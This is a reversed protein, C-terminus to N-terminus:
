CGRSYFWTTLEGSPTHAPMWGESLVKPKELSECESGSMVQVNLWLQNSLMGTETVKITDSSSVIAISDLGNPQNLISIGSGSKIFVMHNLLLYELSYYQNNKTGQVWLPGEFTDLKYWNNRTELVIAAPAEYRYEKTLLARVRQGDETHVNVTLGECGGVDPFTWFKDVKIVGSSLKKDMGSYLLIEEPSFDDCPGEGLVEPLTLLGILPDRALASTTGLILLVLPFILFKMVKEKNLIHM